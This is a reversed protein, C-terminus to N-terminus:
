RSLHLGASDLGKPEPTQPTIIKWSGGMERLRRYDRWRYAFELHKTRIPKGSRARSQLAAEVTGTTLLTREVPYPAKGRIFHSQIAHALAKFLCRNNWPGVYFHTAQPKANGRFRCAFNWRTASNGIKLVTGKLGNKYTLLIGHPPANQSKAFQRLDRIPKGIEASLAAAALDLSWRGNEAAKWLADGELFEVASIGTEGGRRDEVMSQLVELAHIDYSEVGGGHISVAEEIRAAHPIELPPIRQALPVSSGAMFPIGLRVTTDYMQKAWDWRYSLHKDNFLPVFRKSQMMVSVVEDFFRKRPYMVQGLKTSPYSGHEGICLVADVALKKGGLRLAEGITRFMAIGYKKAIGRSMEGTPMQDAYFSVVDVGPDTKRGNFVYPELFNELLVHAHSRYTFETFIVAVKPRRPRRNVAAALGSLPVAAGGLAAGTATLFSRRSISGPHVSSLPSSEYTM